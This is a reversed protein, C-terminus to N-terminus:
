EIVDTKPRRTQVPYIYKIIETRPHIYSNVSLTGAWAGNRVPRGGGAQTAYSPQVLRKRQHCASITWVDDRFKHREFLRALAAVRQQRRRRRRSLLKLFLLGSREPRGCQLPTAIPTALLPTELTSIEIPTGLKLMKQWEGHPGIQIIKPPGSVWCSSM